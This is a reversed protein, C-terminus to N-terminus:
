CITSSEPAPELEPSTAQTLVGEIGLPLESFPRFLTSRRVRAGPFLCLAKGTRAQGEEADAKAEKKAKWTGTPLSGSIPSSQTPGAARATALLSRLRLPLLLAASLLM